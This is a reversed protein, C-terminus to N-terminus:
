SATYQVPQEPENSGRQECSLYLFDPAPENGKATCVYQDTYSIKICIAYACFDGKFALVSTSQSWDKFCQKMLTDYWISTALLM